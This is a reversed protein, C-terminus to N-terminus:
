KLRKEQKVVGRRNREGLLTNVRAISRRIRGRHQPKVQPNALNPSAMLLMKRLEESKKILQNDTLKRLENMEKNM